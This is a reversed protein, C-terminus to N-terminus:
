QRSVSKTTEALVRSGSVVASGVQTNTLGAIETRVAVRRLRNMEGRVKVEHYLSATKAAGTYALYIKFTNLRIIRQCMTLRNMRLRRMSLSSQQKSISWHRLVMEQRFSKDCLFKLLM